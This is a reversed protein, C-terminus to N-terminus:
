QSVGLLPALARRVEEDTTGSLARRRKGNRDFIWVIPLRVDGSLHESVVPGDGDVVEARRVALDPHEAALKRLLADIHECPHCWSAWFDIVTVKGRVVADELKFSDGGLAVDTVDGGDAVVKTAGHDHVHERAAEGFLGINFDVGLSVVVPLNFQGGESRITFPKKVVLHPQVADSAQWFVGLMASLDTRGTNVADRGDDWTSPEEHYLEPGLTFYLSDLGFGTGAAIGTTIKTGARYGHSGAYLSTRGSAWLALDVPGFSRSMNLGLFPDLTGTGFFIHQHTSGSRGLEFPNNEVSGTPFALGGHLDLLLVESLSPGIIRVRAGLEVDGIGAVVEDRHHISEFGEIAQGQEDLFAADVGVVRFPIRAEWAFRTGLGLSLRLDADFLTLNV